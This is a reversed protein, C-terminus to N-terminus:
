FSTCGHWSAYGATLTQLAEERESPVISFDGSADIQLQLEAIRIPCHFSFEVTAGYEFEDTTLVDIYGDSHAIGEMSGEERFTLLLSDGHLASDIVALVPEPYEVVTWSVEVYHEIFLESPQVTSAPPVITCGPGPVLRPSAVCADIYATVRGEITEEIGDRVEFGYTFPAIKGSTMQTPAGIEKIQDGLFMVPGETPKILSIPESFFEYLGPLVALMTNPNAFQGLDIKYGNVELFPVLDRSVRIWGFPDAVKWGEGDDVVKLDATLSTDEPGRVTAQVLASEPDAAAGPQIPAILRVEGISWDSVAAEPTILPTEPDPSEVMAMAADVDGDLAAQLFERVAREPGEAQAWAHSLRGVTIGIATLTALAFLASLVRGLIDRDLPMRFLRLLRKIRTM